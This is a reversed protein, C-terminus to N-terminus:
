DFVHGVGKSAWLWTIGDVSLQETAWSLFSEQGLSLFPLPSFFIKRKHIPFQPVSPNLSKGSTMCSPQPLALFLDCFDSEWNLAKVVFDGRGWMLVDKTVCASPLLYHPYFLQLDCYFYCINVRNLYMWKRILGNFIDTNGGSPSLNQMRVTLGKPRQINRKFLWLLLTVLFIVNMLFTIIISSCYM